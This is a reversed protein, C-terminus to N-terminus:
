RFMALYNFSYNDFVANVWSLNVSIGIVIIKRARQVDAFAIPSVFDVCNLNEFFNQFSALHFHIFKSLFFTDILFRAQSITHTLRINLHNINSDDVTTSDDKLTFLGGFVQASIFSLHVLTVFAFWFTQPHCWRFGLIGASSESHFFPTGGTVRLFWFVPSLSRFLDNAM